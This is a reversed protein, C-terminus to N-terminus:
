VPAERMIKAAAAAPAAATRHPATRPVDGMDQRRKRFRDLEDEMGRFRFQKTCLFVFLLFTQPHHMPACGASRSCRLTILGAATFPPISEM